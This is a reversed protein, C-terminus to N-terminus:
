KNLTVHGTKFGKVTMTLSSDKPNFSMPGTVAAMRAPKVNVAELGKKGELLTAILQGDPGTVGSIQVETIGPNPNTQGNWWISFSNSAFTATGSISYFTQSGGDACVVTNSTITIEVPVEEKQEVASGTSPDIKPCAGYTTGTLTGRLIVVPGCTSVGARVIARLTGQLAIDSSTDDCDRGGGGKEAYSPLATAAILMAALAFPFKRHRNM